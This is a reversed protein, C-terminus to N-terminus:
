GPMDVLFRVGPASPEATVRAKLQSTFARVMKMGLSTARAVDFGPPLGRGRDSVTLHRRGDPQTRFAIEVEGAEGAAYAYKMANTVLENIILALPIVQDVPLDMEECDVVVQRGGSAAALSAALEACTERLFSGMAIERMSGGSHLRQHVQAIAAIRGGAEQFQRRMEPDGSSLAQLTLLSSVLQLSNKIRHNVEKLLADKEALRAALAREAAEAERASLVPDTVDHAMVLVGTVGGQVLPVLDVDWVTPRQGDASVADVGRVQEARGSRVVADIADACAAAIHPFAEAFRGGVLPAMGAAGQRAPDNAHLIRGDAADIVLMAMAAREMMSLFLAPDHMDFAPEHLSPLPVAM